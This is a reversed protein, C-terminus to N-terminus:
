FSGLMQSGRFSLVVNVLSRHRTGLICCVSRGRIEFLNYNSQEMLALDELNDTGETVDYSHWHSLHYLYVSCTLM